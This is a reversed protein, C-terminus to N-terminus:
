VVGARQALGRLQPTSPRHERKILQTLVDHARQGYRVLEPSQREAHLLMHVAAADKRQVAYAHALDLHVQTRRGVLSDPMRSVDLSEGIEIASLADGVAVAASLRHIQINTTGFANMSSRVLPM